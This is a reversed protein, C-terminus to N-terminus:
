RPVPDLAVGAWGTGPRGASAPSPLPELLHEIGRCGCDPHPQWQRYDRRGTAADIRVSVAPAPGNSLRDLVLRLAVAAAELVLAAPEDASRGLLQTALAPWAPDADRHHLELCLLCPGSGPEVIPGVTVGGDGAIIPLHPVDRRLWLGHLAPPTVHSSVIIALDPAGEALTAADAAAAVSAGADRLAQHLVAVLRGTGSLAIADVGTDAPAVLLPRVRELLDDLEHGEGQAIMTLGPRSVGAALAALLREQTESVGDIRLLEPDIGFQLSTPTRWAMPYRPDLRLIM